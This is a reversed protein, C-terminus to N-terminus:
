IRTQGDYENDAVNNRKDGRDLTAVSLSYAEVRPCALQECVTRTAQQVVERFMPVRLRDSLFKELKTQGRVIGILEAESGM